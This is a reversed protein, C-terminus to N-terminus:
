AITEAKLNGNDNIELDAPSYALADSYVQELQGESNMQIESGLYDDDNIIWSVYGDRDPTLMTRTYVIDDPRTVVGNTLLSVIQCDKADGIEVWPIEIQVPQEAYKDQVEKVIPASIEILRLNGKRDRLFKVTNRTSMDMIDDVMKVSDRFKTDKVQGVWSRLKGSLGKRGVKQVTPYPTFNNEVYPQNENSVSGSDVNGQFQHIRVVHYMPNPYSHDALYYGHGDVKECEVISWNWYYRMKIPRSEYMYGNDAGLGYYARYVYETNNKLGFDYIGTEGHPLICVKESEGTDTRVRYITWRQYQPLDRIISEDYGEDVEMRLFTAPYDRVYYVKLHVYSLATDTWETHFDWWGTDIKIGSELMGNLRVAYDGGNQMIGYVKQSNNALYVNGTDEIINEDPKDAEALRWRSYILPDLTTAPVSAGGPYILYRSFYAYRGYATLWQTTDFEVRAATAFFVPSIQEVVTYGIVGSAPPYRQNVKLKYGNAYGNVIGAAALDAASITNSISVPNGDKDHGLVYGYEANIWDGTYLVTSDADNQMIIYQWGTVATTGNIQWTM